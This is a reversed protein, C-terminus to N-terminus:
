TSELVTVAAGLAAEFATAMKDFGEPLLANESRRYDLIPKCPKIEGGTKERFLQVWFREGTDLGTVFFHEIFGGSKRAAYDTSLEAQRFLPTLVPDLMSTPDVLTENLLKFVTPRDLNMGDSVAEIVNENGISHERYLIPIFDKFIVLTTSYAGVDMLMATGNTRSFTDSALFANMKALERLQISCTTPRRGEPLLNAIWAALQEPIAAVFSIDEGNAKYMRTRYFDKDRDSLADDVSVAQRMITDSSSVVMAADPACFPKPLIWRQSATEESFTDPISSDLDLFGAASIKPVGFKMRMRVAPTGQENDSGIEMGVVDVVPRREQYSASSAAGKKSYTM